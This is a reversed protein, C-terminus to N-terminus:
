PKDPKDLGVEKVFKKYFDVQDGAWKTYDASNLYMDYLLMQDKVKLTAPDMRFTRPGANLKVEEAMATSLSLFCVAIVARGFPPNM